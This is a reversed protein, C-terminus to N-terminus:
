DSEESGGMEGSEVMKLFKSPHANFKKVCGKCCLRVLQGGATVEVIDGHSGLEEGSVVCTDFPYDAKQQEVIAEDIKSLYAAPDADVKKVCGACCFQVLQNGYVKSIPDGMSGLEQGSVVCTKLPYSDKQQAIIAEDIQTLYKASDAELRKQCGACCLKVDRGEVVVQVPEGMAGLAEGSVPCTDLPYPKGEFDAAGALGALLVGAVAAFVKLKM